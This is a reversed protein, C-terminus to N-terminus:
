GGGCNAVVRGIVSRGEGVIKDVHDPLVLSFKGWLVPASSASPSHLDHEYFGSVLDM